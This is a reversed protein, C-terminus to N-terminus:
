NTATNENIEEQLSVKRSPRGSLYGKRILWANLNPYQAKIEQNDLFRLYTKYHLSLGTLGTYNKCFHVLSDVFELVRYFGNRSINSKFIRLEITHAHAMNIAEYKESSSMCDKIRKRSKKAWQTSDRGAIQTIFSSNVDDNIFVLIKGIETLRLASRSIHVHLGATDTNWGKLNEMCMTNNFFHEWQEKQKKFTAPTTTIEFGNDLSGDSKCQAFGYLVDENIMESIDPPCSKRREIELEVGYYITDKGHKEYPMKLKGLDDEVKHMYDYVGDYQSNEGDDEQERDYDEQSIYTDQYESWAYNDVCVDCVSTEGNYVQRMEDEFEFTGCDDCEQVTENTLIDGCLKHIKLEFANYQIFSVSSRIFHQRLDSTMKHIKTAPWGSPALKLLLIRKIASNNHCIKDDNKYSDYVTTNTLKRLFKLLTM